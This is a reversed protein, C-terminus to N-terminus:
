IHIGESAMLWNVMSSLSATIAGHVRDYLVTQNLQFWKLGIVPLYIRTQVQSYITSDFFLDNAHFQLQGTPQENQFLSWM